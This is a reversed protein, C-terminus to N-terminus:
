DIGFIKTEMDKASGTILGVHKRIGAKRGGVESTQRRDKGKIRLGQARNV